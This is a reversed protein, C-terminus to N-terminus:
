QSVNGIWDGSVRGRADWVGGTTYNFYIVDIPNAPDLGAPLNAPARRRQLTSRVPDLEWYDVKPFRKALGSKHPLAEEYSFFITNAVAAFAEERTALLLNGNELPALGMLIRDGSVSAHRREEPTPHSFIPFWAQYAGTHGDFRLFWGTCPSYVLVSNRTQVMDFFFEDSAGLPLGMLLRHPENTSKGWLAGLPGQVHCVEQPQLRGDAQLKGLAFVGAEGGRDFAGQMLFSNEGLFCIRFVAEGPNLNAAGVEVWKGDQLSCRWLRADLKQALTNEQFKVQMTGAGSYRETWAWAEGLNVSVSKTWPPLTIKRSAAMGPGELVLVQPIGIGEQAEGEWLTVLQDGNWWHQAIRPNRGVGSVFWSVKQSPTRPQTSDPPRCGAALLAAFAWLSMRVSRGM